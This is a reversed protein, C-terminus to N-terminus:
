GKEGGSVPADLMDAGRAALDAAIQRTVRPSITSMDIVVMGPRVAEVVGGEGLIVQRVDPTDSVITIVVDSQTAVERPSGVLQAGDALLPEARSRTRNYAIVPYGARRLNRAMPLGM